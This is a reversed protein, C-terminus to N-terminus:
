IMVLTLIFFLLVYASVSLLEMMLGLLENKRSEM